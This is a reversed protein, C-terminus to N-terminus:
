VYVHMCGQTKEIRVGCSPCQKTNERIWKWNADSMETEKSVWVRVNDCTAPRHDGTQTVHANLSRHHTSHTRM